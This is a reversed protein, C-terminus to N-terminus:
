RRHCEGCMVPGANKELHCGKCNTHFARMLGLQRGQAELQHCDSCRQDESSGDEVLKGNEYLHHCVACDEIAAAENHEDHRFVSATRQPNNFADPEVTVMDEQAWAVAWVLLGALAIIPIQKVFKM